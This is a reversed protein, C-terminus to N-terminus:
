LDGWRYRMEERVTGSDILTVPTLRVPVSTGKNDITEDSAVTEGRIIQLAATYAGLGISRPKKDIDAALAGTLLAECADRDADAGIVPIRGSKGARELADVAGMAMGSNNALIGTIGPEAQLADEVTITALDRAWGRHSKVAIVSIAPHSALTALNAATIAAAVSNGDEGALILIKGRGNMREVLYEAQLEGVRRSDATVYLRVPAGEPLRDMAIVPIGADAAKQILAGATATNVAHLIIVDVSQAILADVDAAQKAESGEASLWTLKIGDVTTREQMADRMFGYVSEQMTAVSVGIHPTKSTGGCGALATPLLAFLLLVLARPNM